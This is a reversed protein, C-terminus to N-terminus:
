HKNVLVAIKGEPNYSLQVIANKKVKAFDEGGYKVDLKIPKKGQKILLVYEDKNKKEVNILNGVYPLFEQYKQGIKKMYFYGAAVIAVDFLIIGWWPVKLFIGVVLFVIMAVFFPIMKRMMIKGIIDNAKKEPGTLTKQRAYQEAFKDRIGM